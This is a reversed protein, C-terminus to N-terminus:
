INPALAGKTCPQSGLSEPTTLFAEPYKGLVLMKEQGKLGDSDELKYAKAESKVTRDKVRYEISSSQILNFFSPLRALALKLCFFADM